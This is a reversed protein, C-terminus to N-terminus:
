YPETSITCRRQELSPAWCGSETKKNAKSQFKSPEVLGQPNPNPAAPEGRLSLSGAWQPWPYAKAGATNTVTDQRNLTRGGNRSGSLTSHYTCVHSPTLFLSSWPPPAVRRLGCLRTAEPQLNCMLPLSLLQRTTSSSVSVLIRLYSSQNWIKHNVPWMFKPLDHLSKSKM